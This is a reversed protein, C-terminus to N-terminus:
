WGRQSLLQESELKSTELSFMPAGLGTSAAAVREADAFHTTAEVIAKARHEPNESKFIGSGVFVAEATEIRRAGTQDAALEDTEVGARALRERFKATYGARDALAFPVFLLRRVGGLVDLMEALAHDLYGEGHNTSNSLLLLRRM